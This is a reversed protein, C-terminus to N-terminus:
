IAVAKDDDAPKDEPKRKDPKEVADLLDDLPDLDDFDDVNLSSEGLADALLADAEEDSIAKASKPTQEGPAEDLDAELGWEDLDDMSTAEGGADEAVAAPAAEPLADDAIEEPAFASDEDVAEDLPTDVEVTEAPAAEAPPPSALQSAAQADGNGFVASYESLMRTMTDMTIQLEEALRRNEDKLRTIEAPDAGTEGAAPAASGGQLGWYPQVAAEVSLDFAAAAGSDRRLYLNAFAQYLKMEERVIPVAAADLEAGSLGFREGLFARVADERSARGAKVKAVLEKVAKRARARAGRERVWAAFLLVLVVLVLEGAVLALWLTM